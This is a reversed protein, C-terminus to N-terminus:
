NKTIDQFFVYKQKAVTLIFGSADTQEIDYWYKGPQQDAKLATWPFQVRGTLPDGNIMGVVQALQGTADAPNREANVTLKFSYGTLDRPEGDADTVVIVDPATDGRKRYIVQGILDNAM